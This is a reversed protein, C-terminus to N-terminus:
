PIPVPVPDQQPRFFFLWWPLPVQLPAPSLNSDENDMRRYVILGPSDVWTDIRKGSETTLVRPAYEHPPGPLVFYDCPLYTIDSAVDSLDPNCDALRQGVLRRGKQVEDPTSSKIEFFYAFDGGIPMLIDFRGGPYSYESFM